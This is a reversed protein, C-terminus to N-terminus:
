QVLVTLVLMISHHLQKREIKRCTLSKKKKELLDEISEASSMNSSQVAVDWSGDHTARLENM